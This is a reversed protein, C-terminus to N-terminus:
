GVERLIIFQQESDTFMVREVEMRIEKAGPPIALTTRQPTPNPIWLTRQACPGCHRTEKGIGQENVHAVVVTAPRSCRECLPVSSPLHRRRFLWRGWSLMRRLM